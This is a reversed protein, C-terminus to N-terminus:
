KALTTLLKKPMFVIIRSILLAQGLYILPFFPLFYRVEVPLAISLATFWALMSLGVIAGVLPWRREILILGGVISLLVAVVRMGEILAAQRIAAPQADDNLVRELFLGTSWFIRQSLTDGMPPYAPTIWSKDTEFPTFPTLNRLIFYWKARLERLACGALEVPHRLLRERAVGLPIDVTRILALFEPAFAPPVIANTPYRLRKAIADKTDEIAQDLANPEAAAPLCLLLRYALWSRYFTESNTTATPDLPIPYEIVRHDHFLQLQSKVTTEAAYTLASLLGLSVIMSSTPRLSFPGAAPRRKRWWAHVLLLAITLWLVIQLLIASAGHVAFSLLMATVTLVLWLWRSPGTRIVFALGSALTGYFLLLSPLDALMFLTARAFYSNIALLALYILSTPYGFSRWIAATSAAAFVVILGFHLWFMDVNVSGPALWDVAAILAPYGPLRRHSQLEGTEALGRAYSVYGDPDPDGTPGYALLQQGLLLLLIAM